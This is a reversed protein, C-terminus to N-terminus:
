LHGDPAPEAGVGAARDHACDHARDHADGAARGLAAQHASDRAACAPVLVGGRTRRHTHMRMRMRMRMLLSARQRAQENYACDDNMCKGFLATAYGKERRLTTPFADPWVRTLDM